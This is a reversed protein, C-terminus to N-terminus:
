SAGYTHPIIKLNRWKSEYNGMAIPNYLRAVYRFNARFNKADKSSHKFVEVM